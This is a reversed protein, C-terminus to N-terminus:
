PRTAVGSYLKYITSLQDVLWKLQMKRILDDEETNNKLQEIINQITLMDGKRYQWIVNEPYIEKLCERFRHIDGPDSHKIKDSWIEPLLKNLFTTQAQKKFKESHIYQKIREGWNEQENLIQELTQQMTLEKIGKLSNNIRNVLVTCEAIIDEDTIMFEMPIQTEESKSKVNEIMLEVAQELIVSNFGFKKLTIFLILINKYSSIPYRNNKLRDLIQEIKVQVWSQPRMYYQYYLLSYPDDDELKSMLETNIYQIIENKLENENFVSERIYSNISQFIIRKKYVIKLIEDEPEQINGKFEVCLMFSNEILFELVRDRYLSDIGDIMSYEKSLVEIKSLFFQFTRLNFHKMRHLENVFYQVKNDLRQKLDKELRSQAILKHMIGSFDTEYHITIGILKERIRKYQNDYELDSFMKKRRRELEEVTLVSKEQASTRGFLADTYREVPIKIEEQSAILYQLERYESRECAGIEKENAVLIIKVGEHEVLGNIYGLLENIQCNSRELDDFVFIYQDLRIYDEIYEYSKYGLDFKQIITGFIKKTTSLVANRVNEQKEGYATIPLTNQVKNKLELFKKDIISWIVNEEIEEVSKCGYLSIYKLVRKRGNKEFEEIADKLEHTIFYTKGSGWEGDILIAYNYNQDDLYRMIEKKIQIEKM